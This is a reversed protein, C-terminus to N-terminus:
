AARKAGPRSRVPRRRRRAAQRARPTRGPLCAQVPDHRPMPATCLWRVWPVPRVAEQWPKGVVGRPAPFSTFNDNAYFYSGQNIVIVTPITVYGWGYQGGSSTDPWPQQVM